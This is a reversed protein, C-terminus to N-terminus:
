VPQGACLGFGAMEVLLDARCIDAQFWALDARDGLLERLVAEVAERDRAHRLFVKISLSQTSFRSGPARLNAQEVVAELNRLTEASQAAVDGVHVSEHGLISATGSVFLAQRDPLALLTARSFTPSQPGYRSPYHYASVQRPNEVAEPEVNSALFSVTLKGSRTGLACASPARTSWTRNAGDFADKRGINFQRYRELGHECENIRPFYNWCHVLNPFGACDIADFIAAYAAQSARQIPSISGSAPFDAEDLAVYGLLVHQNHRYRLPGRVGARIPDGADWIADM